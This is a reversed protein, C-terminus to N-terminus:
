ISNIFYIVTDCHVNYPIRYVTQHLYQLKCTRVPTCTGNWQDATIRMETHKFTNRLDLTENESASGTVEEGEGERNDQERWLREDETNRHMSDQTLTTSHSSNIRNRFNNVHSVHSRNRLM